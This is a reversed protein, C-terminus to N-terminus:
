PVRSAVWRAKGFTTCFYGSPDPGRDFAYVFGKARGHPLLRGKFWYLSQSSTTAVESNDIFGFRGNATIKTRRIGFNPRIRHPQEDCAMEIDRAQFAVKNGRVAFSVTAQQDFRVKGKYEVARDAGLIAGPVFLSAALM